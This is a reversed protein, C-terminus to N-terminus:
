HPPESTWMVRAAFGFHPSRFWLWVLILLNSTDKSESTRLGPRRLIRRVESDLRQSCSAYQSWAALILLWDLYMAETRHFGRRHKVKHVAKPRGGLIRAASPSQTTRVSPSSGECSQEWPIKLGKRRGNRWTRRRGTRADGCWYGLTPRRGWKEALVM